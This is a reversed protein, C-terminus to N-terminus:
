TEKVHEVVDLRRRHFTIVFDAGLVLIMRLSEIEKIGHSTDLHREPDEIEYLNFALCNNREVIRPLVEPADFHQGLTLDLGAHELVENFPAVSDAQIDIWSFVSRDYLEDDLQDLQFERITHDAPCFSIGHFTIGPGARGVDNM